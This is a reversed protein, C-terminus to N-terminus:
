GLSRTTNTLLRTHPVELLAALGAILPAYDAMPPVHIFAALELSGSECQHCGLYFVQNCLFTGAHCSPVADVGQAALISISFPIDLRTRYANAGGPVVERMWPQDGDNDGRSAHEINVALLEIDLTTRHPAYGLGIWLRPQHSELLHHFALPTASYSVPLVAANVGDVRAAVQVAIDATLTPALVQGQGTTFPQFGTLLM